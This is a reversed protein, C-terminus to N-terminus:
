FLPARFQEGLRGWEIRLAEEPAGKAQPTPIVLPKDVSLLTFRKTAISGLRGAEIKPSLEVVSITM